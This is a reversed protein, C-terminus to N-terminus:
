TLLNGAIQFYTSKIAAAISVQAPAKATMSGIIIELPRQDIKLGVDRGYAGDRFLVIGAEALVTAIRRLCSAMIETRSEYRSM